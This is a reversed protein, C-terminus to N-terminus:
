NIILNGIDGQDFDELVEYLTNNFLVIDDAEDVSDGLYPKCKKPLTGNFEVDCRSWLHLRVNLDLLFCSISDLYFGM